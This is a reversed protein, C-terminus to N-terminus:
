ATTPPMGCQGSLFDEILGLTKLHHRPYWPLSHPMDAILEFRADVKDKVGDYFNKAHWSPTRVDRDGVYLLIPIDAKETNRMPDMGTVTQGQVLRQLRNDSWTVGLRGLDSVPAGAIACQYPGNQRVSAAVAAFGGYSYGFIAIRDEDAIGQEVLWQAGDDKDDQMKQGWEGDGALWLQRGLGASGRYQPRLVAYGRSTLFPVWGSVDWGTTDRAWPGGHPHIITPLPDDGEEWGPPLDLIAPIELGDRAEYTVWRQEGINKSDLWPRSSGVTEVRQRDRLLRYVPPQRNSSTSFLVTDMENTYGQISVTQDPFAQELADQIGRMTPDVYVTQFRPGAVQFGLLQNFNSPQMGFVLGGISYEPHAVLPEDSFAQTSPNYTYAEVRDSFQDTLVYLEGTDENIGALSVSYRDRINTTLKDQVVFEGADNKLLIRQEFQGDTTELTSRAVVEGTRPHFLAPSSSANARELLETSGDRLDYRYYNASLSAGNLQQIIVHHPDLPLNSVLSAEGGVELCRETAESIGLRRVNQAFAEEFDEHEANTLYAKTVFTRTAGISNGEGCGNLTGTWEQRGIVLLRDSKLASAAVFKMDDGSPTIEPAQDMNDLDWTALATERNDSGPLAIIAVLQEGDASMSVSQINPYKALAEAPIPEAAATESVLVAAMVVATSFLRLKM